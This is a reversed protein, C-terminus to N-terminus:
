NVVLIFDFYESQNEVFHDNDDNLRDCDIATLHMELNGGCCLYSLKIILQYKLLEM